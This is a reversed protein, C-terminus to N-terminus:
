WFVEEDKWVPNLPLTFFIIAFAFTEHFSIKKVVFALASGSKKILKRNYHIIINLHFKWKYPMFDVKTINFKKEKSCKITSSLLNQSPSFGEFVIITDGKNVKEGNYLSDWLKFFTLLHSVFLFTYRRQCAPILINNKRLISYFGGKKCINCAMCPLVFLPPSALLM